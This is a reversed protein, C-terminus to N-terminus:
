QAKMPELIHGRQSRLIYSTLPFFIRMQIRTILPLIVLFGRMLSLDPQSVAEKEIVSNM